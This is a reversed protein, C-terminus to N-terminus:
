LPHRPGAGGPRQHEGLPPRGPRGGDAPGELIEAPQRVEETVADEAAPSASLSVRGSSLQHYVTGSLVEGGRSSSICDQHLGSHRRPPQPDPPRVPRSAVVPEWQASCHSIIDM